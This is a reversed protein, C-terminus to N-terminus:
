AELRPNSVKAFPYVAAQLVSMLDKAHDAFDELM